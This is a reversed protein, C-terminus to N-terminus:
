TAAAAGGAYRDLLNRTCQLAASSLRSTRLSPVNYDDLGWSWQITGAAFVLAGSAATYISMHSLGRHGPDTLSTWPSEALIQLDAPGGGQACDVEYGLLGPLTDGRALGTRDFLWHAPATIVVDGDVPDGAYM